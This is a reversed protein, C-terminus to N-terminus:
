GYEKRLRDLSVFEPDYMGGEVNYKIVVGRWWMNNADGAWDSEYDIFCGAVLGFIKNQDQTRECFDLIHTHGQTCSRFRKTLLYYAPHEGSIARGLIGSTFYHAYAIGDIIEVGPTGNNYRVVHDYYKDLELNDFGIIGELEPQLQIARSIREEHNGEFFWTEPLKKKRRRIPAWLRESFELGADVDARYTRGQFSKKGKDYSCLSPFDWQDGLNIVVDPKLDIILRSLLDARSNDYNYHAHIDPIVLHIKSM